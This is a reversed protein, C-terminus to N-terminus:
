RSDRFAKLREDLDIVPLEKENELFFVSPGYTRGLSVFEPSQYSLRLMYKEKPRTVAISLPLRIMGDGVSVQGEIGYLMDAEIEGKSDFIQQRALKVNGVRDFWFRRSIKSGADTRAIEDLLYYGRLVRRIPSKKPSGQDEEDMFVASMVYIFKEDDVPRVLIADTFHQPRVEAFANVKQVLEKDQGAEEASVEKKLLSYDANNTGVIFRRNKGSGGDSLIAVRFREGDSTMQAIDLSTVAIPAQIKLFISAPRQVIIEGDATRYKEAIGLEAFSNDEFKLDMKARMSNVSSLRDINSKLDELNAVETRLLLPRGKDREKIIGSCGSLLVVGAALLVFINRSEFVRRM